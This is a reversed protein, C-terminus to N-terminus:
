RTGRWGVAGGAERRGGGEEGGGGVGCSFCDWRSMASSSRAPLCSNARMRTSPTMRSFSSSCTPAPAPAHPNPPRPRSPHPRSLVSM